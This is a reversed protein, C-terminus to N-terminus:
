GEFNALMEALREALAPPLETSSLARRAEEPAVTAYSSFAVRLARTRLGPDAVQLARRWSEAPHDAALAEVATLVLSDTRDTAPLADVWRAAEVPSAPAWAAAVAQVATRRHTPDSLELSSGAAGSPDRETWSEYISALIDAHHGYGEFFRNLAAAPDSLGLTTLGGKVARVRLYDSELSQAWDLVAGADLRAWHLGIARAAEGLLEVDSSTAPPVVGEALKERYTDPDNALDAETLNLAALATRLTVRHEEALTREAVALSQAAEVPNAGAGALLAANLALARETPPVRRSAWDVSAGLDGRAWIGGVVALAQMRRLPSGIGEALELAGSLDARALGRAIEVFAADRADGLLWRSAWALATEPDTRALHLVLRRILERITDSAALGADLDTLGKMLARALLDLRVRDGTVELRMFHRMLGHADARLWGAVLRALLEERGDEDPLAAAEDFLATFDGTDAMAIRADWEAPSSAPRSVDAVAGAPLTEPAPVRRGASVIWATALVAVVAALALSTLTKKRHSTSAM